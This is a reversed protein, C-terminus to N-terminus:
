SDHSDDDPEQISPHESIHMALANFSSAMALSLTPPLHFTFAVQVGSEIHEAEIVLVNQGSGGRSQIRSLAFDTSVYNTAEDSIFRQWDDHSLQM